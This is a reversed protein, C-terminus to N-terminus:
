SRTRGEVKRAERQPKHHPRLQPQVDGQDPLNWLALTRRDLRRKECCKNFSVEGVGKEQEKKLAELDWHISAINDAHMFHVFFMSWSGSAHEFFQVPEEFPIGFNHDSQEQIRGVFTADTAQDGLVIRRHPLHECMRVLLLELCQLNGPRPAFSLVSFHPLLLRIVAEQRQQMSDNFKQGVFAVPDTSV